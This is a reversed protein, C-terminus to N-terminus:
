YVADPLAGLVALHADPTTRTGLLTRGAAAIRAGIAANKAQTKGQGFVVKPFGQRANRQHDVRAFGLDEYPKQSLVQFLREQAAEPTLIGARVDDLLARIQQRNM